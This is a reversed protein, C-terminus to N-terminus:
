ETPFNGGPCKDEETLGGLSLLVRAALRARGGAVLLENFGNPKAERYEPTGPNPAGGWGGAM